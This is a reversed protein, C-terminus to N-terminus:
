HMYHRVRAAFYDDVLIYAEFLPKMKKMEGSTESVGGKSVVCYHTLGGNERLTVLLENGDDHASLMNGSRSVWMKSNKSAGPVLLMNDKKPEPITGTLVPENTEVRETLAAESM